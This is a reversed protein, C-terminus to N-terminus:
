YVFLYIFVFLYFYLLYIFLVFFYLLYICLYFSPHLETIFNVQCVLPGPIVKGGTTFPFTWMLLFLPGLCMSSFPWAQARKSPLPSPPICSHKQKMSGHPPVTATQAQATETSLDKLRPSVAPRAPFKPEKQKFFGNLGKSGSHIRFCLPTHSANLKKKDSPISQDHSSGKGQSDNRLHPTEPSCQQQPGEMEASTVKKGEWDESSRHSVRRLSQVHFGHLLEPFGFM